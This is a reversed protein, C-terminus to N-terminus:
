VVYWMYVCMCVCVICLCGAWKKVQYSRKEISSCANLDKAWSSSLRSSSTPTRKTEGKYIEEMLEQTHTYCLIIHTYDPTVTNLHIHSSPATFIHITPPSHPGPTHHHHHKSIAYVCEGMLVCLLFVVATFCCVIYFVCLVCVCLYIYMCLSVYMYLVCM